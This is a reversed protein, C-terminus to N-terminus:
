TGARRIASTALFDAQENGKHGAHGKVKIFKLDKFTSITKKISEVIDKNKKSKWGLALVGHAYSSDTYIRVPLDTNKVAMLGIQIAKLEAINNTAHGIYKSIERAHTGYQLVVGIGAPGPNGSSAGDAFICITNEDAEDKLSELLIRREDKNTPRKGPKEIKKPQSQQSMSDLPKVGAKNVWYEYDQELQYKILVKGDKEIPKGGPQTALWVKNKRFRMRKWEITEPRQIRTM